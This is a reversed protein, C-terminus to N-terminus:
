VRQIPIDESDVASINARWRGGTLQGRSPSPCPLTDIKEARRTAGGVATRVVIGAAPPTPTLPPAATQACCTPQCRRLRLHRERKLVM